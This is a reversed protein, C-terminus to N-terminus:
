PGTPTLTCGLSQMTQVIHDICKKRDGTEIAISNEKVNLKSKVTVMVKGGQDLVTIAADVQQACEGTVTGAAADSFSVKGIKALAETAIKTTAQRDLNSVYTSEKWNTIGTWSACSAVVLGIIPVVVALASFSRIQTNM